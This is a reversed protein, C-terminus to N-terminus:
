IGLLSDWDLTAFTDRLVHDDDPTEFTHNIFLQGAITRVVTLPVVDDRLGHFIAIPMHLQKNLYPKYPALHLAPALLVLKKV